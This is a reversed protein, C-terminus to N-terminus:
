RDVASAVGGAVPPVFGLRAIAAGADILIMLVSNM